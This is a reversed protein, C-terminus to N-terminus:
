AKLGLKTLWRSIAQPNGQEASNMEMPLGPLVTAGPELEQITRYTGGDSSGLHTNFPIITKGTFDYEDFLTYMIMPLTYWWIPYGIFINEYGNLDIKNKIAPRRNEDHEIKTFAALDDYHNRNSDYPEVPQIEILDANSQKAIEEATKKATGYTSFYLVLNKKM